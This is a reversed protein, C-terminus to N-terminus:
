NVTVGVGCNSQINNQLNTVYTSMSSPVFPLDTNQMYTLIYNGFGKAVGPPHGV